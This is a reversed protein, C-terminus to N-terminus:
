SLLLIYNHRISVSPMDFTRNKYKTLFTMILSNINCLSGVKEAVRPNTRLAEMLNEALSGIHEDSSVHELKHLVPIVDRGVLEQYCNVLFTM